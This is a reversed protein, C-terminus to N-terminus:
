RSAGPMPRPWSPSRRAPPMQEVNALKIVDVGAGVIQRVKARADADSAVSITHTFYPPAGNMIVPGAAYITPGSLEGSAIRKKVAMVADLPAGLDRVSTVGAMLLAEASSPMTVREFDKAHATFWAAFDPHGNYLLHVHPDWLGPMVTM